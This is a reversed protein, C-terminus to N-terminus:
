RALRFGTYNYGTAPIQSSRSSVRVSKAETRYSGGRIVHHYGTSPGKPNTIVVKDDYYYADYLDSCWEWVNGSMDFLNLENPSKEGVPHTGGTSVGYWAVNDITNSGSYKYGKSQNGGRAAYEWEAETPLRYQKGTLSNLRKIFEQTDNWSVTEVPYDDGRPFSSPNYGMVASWLAQTVEFRGIYFDTLTVRHAPREEQSCENGQETTCGMTFTGGPIFVMEPEEFSVAGDQTVSIAHSISGGSVTITSIRSASNLNNAATVNFAGDGSGSQPSATLWAPEGSVITWDINSNVTIPKPSDNAKFQLSTTSVSLSPTIGAQQTVNIFQFTVGAVAFTITAHRQSLSINNDATVTVQGNNTGSTPNVRLWAQNSAVTWSINSTVTLTKPADTATYNLNVPTVNLSPAASVTVFITDPKLLGMGSVTITPTRSTLGTNPDATITVVGDNSGSEPSITLGSSASSSVKWDTNSKIAFSDRGGFSSFEMLKKSLSLTLPIESTSKLCGKSILGFIIVSVIVKITNSYAPKNILRKMM